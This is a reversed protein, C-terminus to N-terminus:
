RAVPAPEPAGREVPPTAPSPSATRETETPAPTLATELPPASEPAPRKARLYSPL